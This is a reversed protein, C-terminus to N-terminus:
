EIVEQWNLNDESWMYIKGDTPYLTPAEYSATELNLTWSPFPQIGYCELTQKAILESDAWIWGEVPYSYTDKQDIWLEFNDNIVRDASWILFGNDNKYFGQM